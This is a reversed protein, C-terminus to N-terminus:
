KLADSAAKAIEPEADGSLKTLQVSVDVSSKLAKLDGVLTMREPATLRSIDLANLQAATWATRYYGTGGANYYVWAPCSALPVERRPTDVVTCATQLGDTRWCVPVNWQHEPNTQELELKPAGQDCRVEGHIAPIGTQNLFSDMVPAPDIGAASRLASELNATTANGFRHEKLYSRLGSQVSGRGAM